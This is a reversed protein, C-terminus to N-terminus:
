YSKLLRSANQTISYALLLLKFFFFFFAIISTSRCPTNGLDGGQLCEDVEFCAMYNALLFRLRIIFNEDRFKLDRM